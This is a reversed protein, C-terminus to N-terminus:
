EKTMPFRIFTELNGIFKVEDGRGEEYILVANDFYDKSDYYVKIIKM